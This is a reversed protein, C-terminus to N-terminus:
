VLPLRDLHSECVHFNLNRQDTYCLDCFSCKHPKKGEHVTAIHRKLSSKFTFGADCTGCSYPKEGEHMAQIHKFLESKKNFVSRCYKCKCLKSGKHVTAMKKKVQSQPKKGEHVTLFHANLNEEKAYSVDCYPCQFRKKKLKEPSKPINESLKWHCKKDTSKVFIKNLTLASNVSNQWGSVNM